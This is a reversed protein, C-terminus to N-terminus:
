MQPSVEQKIGVAIDFEDLSLQRGSAFDTFSEKGASGNFGQGSDSDKSLAYLRGTSLDRIM